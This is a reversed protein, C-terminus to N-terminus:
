QNIKTKKKLSNMAKHERRKGYGASLVVHGGNKSIETSINNHISAHLGAIQPI